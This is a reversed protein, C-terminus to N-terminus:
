RKKTQSRLKTPWMSTLCNKKCQTVLVIVVKYWSQIYISNYSQISIICICMPLPVSPFWEFDCLGFKLLFVFQAEKKMQKQRAHLTVLAVLLYWLGQAIMLELWVVISLILCIYITRLRVIFHLRRFKCM